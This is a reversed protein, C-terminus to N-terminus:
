DNFTPCSNCVPAKFITIESTKTTTQPPPPQASGAAIFVGQDTKTLCWAFVGGYSGTENTAPITRVGKLLM